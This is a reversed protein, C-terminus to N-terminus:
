ALLTAVKMGELVFGDPSSVDELSRNVPTTSINGSVTPLSTTTMDVVVRPTGPDDNGALQSRDWELYKDFFEMRFSTDSPNAPAFSLEMQGPSAVSEHFFDPARPVLTFDPPLISPPTPDVPRNPKVLTNYKVYLAGDLM